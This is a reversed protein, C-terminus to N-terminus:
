LRPLSMRRYVRRALWIALIALLWFPSFVAIWILVNAVNKGADALSRVAEKFVALPKWVNTEDTAPLVNPDTSLIVTLSALDSNSKLFKMQGQIMEIQQQVSNLERQVALIDPIKKADIMIALFQAETAKLNNLRSELDVYQETIDQGNVNENKLEGMASVDKLGADFTKVPLRVTIEAYPAIGEKLIYSNVVYGGKQNSYNAINKVTEVVDKVHLSISGTKIVMRETTASSANLSIPMIDFAIDAGGRKQAVAPVSSENVERSYNLGASAGVFYDNGDKQAAYCKPGVGYKCLFSNPEQLGYLLAVFAGAAVLVMFVVGGLVKVAPRM